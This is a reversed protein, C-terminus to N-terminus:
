NEKAFNFSRLSLDGAVVVFTNLVYIVARQLSYARIQSKQSRNSNELSFGDKGWILQATLLSAPSCYQAKELPCAM